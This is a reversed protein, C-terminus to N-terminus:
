IEAHQVSSEINIDEDLIWPGGEAQRGGWAQGGRGRQRKRQRAPEQCLWPSRLQYGEGEEGPGGAGPKFHYKRTGHGGPLRGALQGRKERM